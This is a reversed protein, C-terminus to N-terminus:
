REMERLLLNGVHVLDSFYTDIDKETFDPHAILLRLVVREKISAVGVLSIGKKYLHQRLARNLTNSKNKETKYCFCVNFSTRPVILELEPTGAILQEAYTCLDLYKEVRAALGSRGYFKWDLFWKLSDIRRGCQLSVAGLDEVDNGSEDHFIYSTDGGALVNGLTHMRKNILFVNCMLAAGLMKHFDFTFSDVQEIGRLYKTRLKQSLVVAGGWAGDVHLWFNYKDRLALCDVISDYAGRITTGATLGVFFPKGGVAVVGAIGKELQAVDMEGFRNLPIKILQDLGIGLVNAAKDMSYHADASVFAFLKEQGFLGGQKVSDNEANRAAMMGIMNANSSGTTMQGEGSSFGVLDLMQQIMYKEMLTSVPASEFTCSSSNSFATVLEGALSPLNAGSWMRNVFSPHATKVSYTLYKDIWQFIEQWDGPNSRADLQLLDRLEKSGHYDLFAGDQQSDFYKQLIQFLHQFVIKEKM